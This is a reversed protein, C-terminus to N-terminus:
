RGAMFNSLEGFPMAKELFTFTGEEKMEKAASWFGGMAARHLASGTSM